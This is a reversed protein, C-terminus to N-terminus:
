NESGTPKGSIYMNKYIKNIKPKLKPYIFLRFKALKM